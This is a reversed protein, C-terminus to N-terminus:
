RLPGELFVKARIRAKIDTLSLSVPTTSLLGTTEIGIPMGDEARVPKNGWIDLLDDDEARAITFGKTSELEDDSM